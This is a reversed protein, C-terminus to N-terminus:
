VFEMQDAIELVRRGCYHWSDQLYIMSVSLDLEELGM